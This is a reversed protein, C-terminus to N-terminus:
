NKYSNCQELIAPGEISNWYEEYEKMGAELSTTGLVIKSAIEERKKKVSLNVEALKDSKWVPIAYAPGKFAEVEKAVALQKAFSKETADDWKFPVKVDVNAAFLYGPNFSAGTAKAKETSGAVGNEITYHLDKVGIQSITLVEPDFALAQVLDFARDPNKCSASIVWADQIAENLTGKTGKPGVLTYMPIFESANGSSEANSMYYSYRNYYDIAAATKGTFLNERMKNNENTVFEQDLIKADYLKKIYVLAEKVEPTNFGDIHKGDKEYINAYGGFANYFYQLNDIFKPFTLPVVEAANIKKMENFFEETGMEKKISVKYKDAMDQRVWLFKQAPKQYPVYHVKGNIRLFDYYAPDVASAAKSKAIYDDLAIIEGNVVFGPLYNMAQMVRVVDPNDGSSFLLGLKQKYQSNPIVMEKITLNTKEGIAKAVAKQLEPDKATGWWSDTQALTLEVNAGSAIASTEDGCNFLSAVLVVSLVVLFLKRLKM